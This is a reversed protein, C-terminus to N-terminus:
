VAGTKECIFGGPVWTLNINFSFSPGYNKMVKRINETPGFPFIPFYYTVPVKCFKKPM